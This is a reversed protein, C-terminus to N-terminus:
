AEHLSTTIVPLHLGLACSVCSRYARIGISTSAGRFWSKASSRVRIHRYFPGYFETCSRIFSYVLLGSHTDNPISCTNEYRVGDAGGQSALATVHKVPINIRPSISDETSSRTLFLKCPTKVDIWHWQCPTPLATLAPQSAITAMAPLLTPFQRCRPRYEEKEDCNDGRSHQTHPHTACLLAIGVVVIASNINTTTPSFSRKSSGWTLVTLILFHLKM